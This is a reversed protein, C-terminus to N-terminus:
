STPAQFGDRTADGDGDPQIADGWVGGALEGHQVSWTGDGGVTGWVDVGDIGVFFEAGPDGTGVITQTGLDFGTVRISSVILERVYGGQDIVIRQGPELVFGTEFLVETWPNASPPPVVRTEWYAPEGDPDFIALSVESGEIWENAWIRNEDPVAYLNPNPAGFIDRTSDGDEDFQIAGGWVGGMLNVNQVAWTGDEGVTGGVDSGGIGVLFEAGPDGTGFITQAGLDLGTVRISSVILERAYDGQNIVIRQGPELSFGSEFLVETWPRASPPPVVRSESYVESGGTNFITLDIEGGEIWRNAWIRNEDPVAYLDGTAAVEACWDVATANGEADLIESRGCMGLLLDFPISGFAAEWFGDAVPVRMDSEGHDHVWSHVEAGSDATGAVVDTTADVSSVALNQVIHRRTIGDGTLTVEDGAAVDCIEPFSMSAFLEAPDWEPHGSVGEAACEAKGAVSARVTVGDAWEWGEINEQELFVSFHPNPLYFDISTGDHDVDTQLAGVVAGPPLEGFTATWVNGETAPVQGEEGYLWVWLDYAPDFVGTVTGASTDFDTVALNTVVVDKTLGISGDTLFVHDGAGLSFDDRWLEFLVRTEGEPSGPEQESVAQATYGRDPISLTLTHGMPWGYGEAAGPVYAVFTARPVIPQSPRKWITEVGPTEQSVLDDYTPRYQWIQHWSVEDGTRFCKLHLDAELVQPDDPSLRGKGTALGARGDCFSFYSETWTILFPGGAPGLITARMLSGDGFDIARWVGVFPSRALATASATSGTMGVTSFALALVMLSNVLSHSKM